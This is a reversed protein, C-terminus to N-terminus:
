SRLTNNIVKIQQCKGNIVPSVLPVPPPSVGAALKWIELFLFYRRTKLFVILLTNPHHLFIQQSIM